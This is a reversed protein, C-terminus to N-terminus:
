IHANEKYKPGGVDGHCTGIATVRTQISRYERERDNNDAAHIQCLGLTKAACEIKAVFRTFHLHPM